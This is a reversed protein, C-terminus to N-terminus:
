DPNYTRESCLNYVKYRNHHKLTLFGQVDAMSNRYFGECGTSPFGMAIIKPTIYSLDLDYGEKQYRFKNTSVLRKAFNWTKYGKLSELDLKQKLDVVKKDARENEDESM